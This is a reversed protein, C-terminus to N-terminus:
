TLCILNLIVLDNLPLKLVAFDVGVLISVVLLVVVSVVGDMIIVGRGVVEAVAAFFVKEFFLLFVCIVKDLFYPKSPLIESNSVQKNTM